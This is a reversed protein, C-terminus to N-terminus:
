DLILVVALPVLLLVIRDVPSAPWFPLHRYVFSKGSKYYRM